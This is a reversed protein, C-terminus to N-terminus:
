QITREERRARSSKGGRTRRGHKKEEHRGHGGGVEIEEEALIKRVAKLESSDGIIAELEEPEMDFFHSEHYVCAKKLKAMVSPTFKDFVSYGPTRFTFGENAMFEEIEAFGIAVWSWSRVERETYFRLHRPDDVGALKLPLLVFDPLPPAKASSVSEETEARTMM